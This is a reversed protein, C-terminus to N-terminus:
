IRSSLAIIKNTITIKLSDRRNQLCIVIDIFLSLTDGNRTKIDSIESKLVKNCLGELVM